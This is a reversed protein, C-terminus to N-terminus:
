QGVRQKLVEFWNLVVDLRTPVSAAKERVTCCSTRRWTARLSMLRAAVRMDRFFHSGPEAKTPYPRPIRTIWLKLTM